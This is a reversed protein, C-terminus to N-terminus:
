KSSSEVFEGLLYQHMRFEASSSDPPQVFAFPAPSDYALISHCTTCDGSIAEGDDTVLDPNHCRFCGSGARHGILSPYTDWEINMEDHVNRTYVEQLTAVAQDIECRRGRWRPTFASTTGVCRTRSGM